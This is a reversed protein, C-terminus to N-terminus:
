SHDGLLQEVHSGDKACNGHYVLRDGVALHVAGEMFLCAKPEMFALELQTM